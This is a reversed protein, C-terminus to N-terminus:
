AQDGLQSFDPLVGRTPALTPEIGVREVVLRALQIFWTKYDKSSYKKM